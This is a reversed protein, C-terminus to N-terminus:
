LPLRPPKTLNDVYQTQLVANETTFQAQMFMTAAVNLPTNLAYSPASQVHACLCFGECHTSEHNQKETHCPAQQGNDMADHSMPAQAQSAPCCDGALAPATALQCFFALIMLYKFFSKM